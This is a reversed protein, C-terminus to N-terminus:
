VVCVLTIILGGRANLKVVQLQRPVLYRYSFFLLSSLRSERLGIYMLPFCLYACFSFVLGSFVSQGPRYARMSGVFRSVNLNAIRQIQGIAAGNPKMIRRLGELWVNEDILARARSGWMRCTQVAQKGDCTCSRSDLMLCLDGPGLHPSAGSTFMLFVYRWQSWDMEDSADNGSTEVSTRRPANIAKFEATSIRRRANIPPRAMHRRIFSKEGNAGARPTDKPTFGTM